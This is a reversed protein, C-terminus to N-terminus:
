GGEIMALARETVQEVTLCDSDIIRADAAPRLPSHARESDLKDRAELDSLVQAFQICKGEDVLEKYRRRAREAASAKFFLKVPAQPAVVTGIDRGAIVIKGESAMRRQKRVLAERVGPVKSVPSVFKDIRARHEELPLPAGDVLLEDGKESMQFCAAAALETLSTEDDPKVGREMALWTVARYMAGTDLFRYGLRRALRRGVVSKGTAVAGDIAILNPKPLPTKM